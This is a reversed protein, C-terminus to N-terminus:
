RGLRLVGGPTLAGDVIVDHPEHPVADVVEGAFVVALVTRTRVDRLWRDYYGGGRGLRHGARDVALAPVVSVEASRAAATAGADPAPELLGFAGPRLQEWGVYRGWRLEGGDVVPLLVMVDAAFLQDLLPRTPPETDVAAYATVVGTGALADLAHHAIAAGAAALDTATRASRAALIGARLLRKAEM